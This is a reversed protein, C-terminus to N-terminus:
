RIKISMSESNGSVIHQNKNPNFKVNFEKGLNNVINLMLRLSTITPEQSIISYLYALHMSELNYKEMFM